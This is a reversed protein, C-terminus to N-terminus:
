SDSSSESDSLVDFPRYRNMNAELPPLDDDEEDSGPEEEVQSTTGTAWGNPTSKFIAPGIKSGSELAEDRGNADVVVFSGNKIWFSKQFKAPCLALSNVGKGDTVEILNSGGLKVVQMISDGEALTVSTGDQCARQLNKRGAKM